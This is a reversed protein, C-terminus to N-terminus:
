RSCDRRLPFLDLLRRERLLIGAWVLVGFLVPFVTEFLPSGARMQIAVAGGLFGTLLVAGLITTRPLAYVATCVLLLVGISPILALPFGLRTCAETVQPPMVLKGIADFLLFLASLGTLVRGTWLRGKSTSQKSENFQSPAESSQPQSASGTSNASAFSHSSSSNLTAASM